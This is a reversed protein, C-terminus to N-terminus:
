TMLCYSLVLLVYRIVDEDSAGITLRLHSLRVSTVFIPRGDGRM